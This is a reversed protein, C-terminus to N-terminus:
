LRPHAVSLSLCIRSPVALYTRSLTCGKKFREVFLMSVKGLTVWQLLVRAKECSANSCRMTLPRYTKHKMSSSLRISLFTEGSCYPCTFKITLTLRDQMRSSSARHSSTMSSSRRKGQPSKKLATSSFMPNLLAHAERDSEMQSTVLPRLGELRTKLSNTTSGRKMKSDKLFHASLLESFTLPRKNILQLDVVPPRGGYAIVREMSLVSKRLRMLNRTETTMPSRRRTSSANTLLSISYM